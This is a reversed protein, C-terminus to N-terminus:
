VKSYHVVFGIDDDSSLTSNEPTKLGLFLSFEFEM